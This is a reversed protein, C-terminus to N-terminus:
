CAYYNDHWNPSKVDKTFHDEFGAAADAAWGEPVSSEVQSSTVPGVVEYNNFGHEVLTPLDPLNVSTTLNWRSIGETKLRQLQVASAQRNKCTLANWNVGTTLWLVPTGYEETQVLAGIGLGRTQLAALVGTRFEVNETLYTARHVKLEPCTKRNHGSTACYSCRRKSGRRTAKLETASSGDIYKGTRKALQTGYYGDKGQGGDLERQARTKIQETYDPCTRRNHGKGYCHRCHVTGSYSM